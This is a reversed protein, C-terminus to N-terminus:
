RREAHQRELVEKHIEVFQDHLAPYDRCMQTVMIMLDEYRLLARTLEQENM